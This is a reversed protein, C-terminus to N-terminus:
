DLIKPEAESHEFRTCHIWPAYRLLSADYTAGALVLRAAHTALRRRWRSHHGRFHLSCPQINIPSAAADLGPLYEFYM